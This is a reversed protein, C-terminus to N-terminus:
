LILIAKFNQFFIVNKGGPGYFFMKYILNRWIVTIEQFIIMTFM